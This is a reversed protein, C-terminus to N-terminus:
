FNSQVLNWSKPFIGRDSDSRESVWPGQMYIRTQEKQLFGGWWAFTSQAAVLGNCSSMERLIDIPRGPGAVLVERKGVSKAILKKALDPQDSFLMIDQHGMNKLSQKFATEFFIPYDIILRPQQVLADGLRIHVALESRFTKEIGANSKDTSSFGQRDTFIERLLEDRQALPAMRGIFYGNLYISKNSYSKKLLDQWNKDIQGGFFGARAMQQPFHDLLFGLTTHAKSRLNTGNKPQGKEQHLTGRHAFDGIQQPWRGASRYVDPEQPLLQTRIELPMDLLESVFRGFSYQFLQNGLGGRLWLNVSM